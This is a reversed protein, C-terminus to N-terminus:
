IPLFLNFTAGKEPEGHATMFGNHNQAIKQCISLGIGTGPYGNKVHLRQFLEFIKHEYVQEFGIGNDHVSIKWYTRNIFLKNGKEDEGTVRQSSINIIPPVDTKRFKIANSILNSFVQHLQMPIASLTPLKSSNIIADNEAITESMNTKIEELVANLDTPALEAKSASVMSYNLLADILSRM